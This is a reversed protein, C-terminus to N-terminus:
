IIRDYKIAVVASNLIGVIGFIAGVNSSDGSCSFPVGISVKGRNMSVPDSLWWSIKAVGIGHGLPPLSISM